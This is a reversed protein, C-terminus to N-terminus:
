FISRSPLKVEQPEWVDEWEMGWMMAVLFACASLHFLIWSFFVSPFLIRGQIRLITNKGATSDQAKTGIFRSLGIWWVRYVVRSFTLGFVNLSKTQPSNLRLHRSATFGGQLLASLSARESPPREPRGWGQYTIPVHEWMLFIQPILGVSHTAM